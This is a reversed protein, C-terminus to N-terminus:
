ERKVERGRYISLSHNWHRRCPPAAAPPGPAPARRPARAGARRPPRRRRRRRCNRRAAPAPAPPTPGAWRGPPATGAAAAPGYWWCSLGELGRERGAAAAAAGVGGAVSGCRPAGPRGFESATAARSRSPRRAKQQPPPLPPRPRRRKGLPRASRVLRGDAAASPPRRAPTRTAGEGGERGRPEGLRSDPPDGARRGLPSRRGRLSEGAAQKERRLAGCTPRPGGAPNRLM